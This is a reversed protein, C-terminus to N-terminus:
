LVARGSLRYKLSGINLQVTIPAPYWRSASGARGPLQGLIIIFLDAIQQGSIRM